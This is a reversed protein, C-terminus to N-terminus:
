GLSERGLNSEAPEGAEWPLGSYGLAAGEEVRREELAQRAHGQVLDLDIRRLEALLEDNSMHKPDPFDGRDRLSKAFGLAIKLKTLRELARQAQQTWQLRLYGEPAANREGLAYEYQAEHEELLQVAHEQATTNNIVQGAVSEMAVWYHHRVNSVSGGVIAAIAGFTKGERRLSLIQERLSVVESQTRRLAPPTPDM